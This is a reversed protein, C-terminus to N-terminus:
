RLRQEAFGVVVVVFGVIAVGTVALALALALVVALAALEAYEGVREGGASSGASGKCDKSPEFEESGSVGGVRTFFVM